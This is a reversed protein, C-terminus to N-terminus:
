IGSWFRHYDLAAKSPQDLDRNSVSIKVGELEGYSTTLLEQNLVGTMSGTDIAVLGLDFLSHLDARLLLGNTVHNTEARRCPVIHATELAVM